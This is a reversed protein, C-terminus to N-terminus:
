PRYSAGFRRGPVYLTSTMAALKLFTSFVPTSTRAAPVASTSTVSSTPPTLSVIVTDASAALLMVSSLWAILRPRSAWCSCSRGRLERSMWDNRSSFGFTTPPLPSM